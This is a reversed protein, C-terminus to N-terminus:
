CSKLKKSLRDLEIVLNETDEEKADTEKIKKKMENIEERIHLKRLNRVISIFEKKIEEDDNFIVLPMMTLKEFLEKESEELKMSVEKLNEAKRTLDAIKKLRTNVIIEALDEADKLFEDLNDFNQLILAVLYEEKSLSESKKLFITEQVEKEGEKKEEKIQFRDLEQRLVEEDTDILVSIKKIYHSQQIRDSLSQIMPLIMKAFEAKGKAEGLNIRRSLRRIMHEIVPEAKQIVMKWQGPHERILEDADTFKGLNLTKVEFGTKHALELSRLLAKEGALDSDFSFYITDCYRKLIKLQQETLSTGLPAVVNEVGEKHSSIVDIQGESLIVFNEKRVADRAQFLGYLLSSKNFVMTEPSNLYKPGLSDSDIVRGSFGVIEGKINLIPFMLRGRFKDYTHQNKNVLLGFNILEAETFGEKILFNMLSNFSEPAYGIKFKEIEADTIKRTKVYERVREGASHEKLIYSFFKTALENAKLIRKKQNAREKDAETFKKSIQVGAKEAAMEVAEPFDLGELKQIFTIVDGSEGCGFCKYIGLDPNISFSPTKENHFPCLAFYNRGSKKMNQVYTQAVDVINLRDKIEEIQSRDAMDLKLM